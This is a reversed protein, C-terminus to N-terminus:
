HRAVQPSGARDAAIELILHDAAFSKMRELLLHLADLRDAERDAVTEEDVRPGVQEELGLVIIRRQDIRRDLAALGKGVGPALPKKTGRRDSGRCISRITLSTGSGNLTMAKGPAGSLVTQALAPTARILWPGKGCRASIVANSSIARAAISRPKPPM